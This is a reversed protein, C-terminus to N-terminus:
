ISFLLFLPIVCLFSIKSIINGENNKFLQLVLILFHKTYNKVVGKMLSQM